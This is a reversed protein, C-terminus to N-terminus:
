RLSPAFNPGSTVVPASYAKQTASNSGNNSQDASQSVHGAHSCCGSGGGRVTQTQGLANSQNNAQTASNSAPAYVNNGSNQRVDGANLVAVNGGSTM